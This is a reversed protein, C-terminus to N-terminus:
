PTEEGEGGGRTLAKQRIWRRLGVEDLETQRVRAVERRHAQLQQERLRALAEAGTTIRVREANAEAVKREAQRVRAEAAELQRGILVSQQQYAMWSLADPPGGNDPDLLSAVRALQDHLRTVAARAADLEAQARRQLQEALWQQQRKLKLPRELRFEFRKM